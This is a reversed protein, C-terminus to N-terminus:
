GMVCFEFNSKHQTLDIEAINHPLYAHNINTARSSGDVTYGQVGRNGSRALGGTRKHIVTGWLWVIVYSTICYSSRAELSVYISPYLTFGGEKGRHMYLWILDDCPPRYMRIAMRQRFEVGQTTCLSAGTIIVPLSPERTIIRDTAKGVFCIKDPAALRCINEATIHAAALLIRPFWLHKM